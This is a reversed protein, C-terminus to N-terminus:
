LKSNQFAEFEAQIEKSPEKDLLSVVAIAILSLIFAPLIEYVAFIGGLKSIAEKWVIVIVGGTIMGALAGNRTMRKWTLSMLVLPGFTAGFGAWAYKVLGFISSNPDLAMFSAIIAVIIVTARAVWMVQKDSANKKILGKFINNSIASSTVLLQSDATSMTAALIASLIVGAILSPILEMSMIVFIKESDPGALVDGLYARGVIGILVAMGLSVIVWVMAIIKSRKIEDTTRIAMFRLLIHPMGFYGLGWALASIISLASFPIQSRTAPDMVSFVNFFGGLEKLNEGVAGIGGTAATGTVLVIILAFFMLTGQISDITSEALFGGIVTYAVIIVASVFMMLTYDLGFIGNFLKGCAVFGTATYIAFFILIFVAAISMLLKSDDHFRNSFFDPLTISDNAVQTYKRLKAAIFKWNLYTGAALGVATWFAEGLGTAYAVGPLGMLLWSSMDSAEASLAGVWPGLNRGGLFYDASNKTKRYYVIGIVVIMAMYLFMAILIQIKQSDM